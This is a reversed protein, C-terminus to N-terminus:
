APEKKILGHKSLVQSTEQHKQISEALLKQQARFDIRDQLDRIAKTVGENQRILMYQKARDIEDQTMTNVLQKALHREIVDEGYLGASVTILETIVATKPAALRKIPRVKKATDLELAQQEIITRLEEIQAALRPAEVEKFYECGFLFHLYKFCEKWSGTAIAAKAALTELLILKGPRGVGGSYTVSTVLQYGNTKCLTRFVPRSLMQNIVKVPRGTSQAIDYNTLGECGLEEIFYPKIQKALETKM